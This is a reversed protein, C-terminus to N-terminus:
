KIFKATVATATLSDLNVTNRLEEAAAKTNARTAKTMHRNKYEQPVLDWLPPWAKLAPALTEFSKCVKIVGETYEQQQKSLTQISQERAHFKDYVEKEYAISMDARFGVMHHNYGQQFLKNSPAQGWSRPFRKPGVTFPLVLGGLGIGGYSILRMTGSMEFFNEPLSSFSPEYPKTGEKYLYEALQSANVPIENAKSLRATFTNNANDRIEEILKDSFKVVAM